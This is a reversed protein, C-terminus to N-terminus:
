WTGLTRDTKTVASESVSMFLSLFASTGLLRNVVRLYVYPMERQRQRDKDKDKDTETETETERDRERERSLRRAKEDGAWCLGIGLCKLIIKM